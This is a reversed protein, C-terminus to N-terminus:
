GGRTQPGVGCLQLASETIMPAADAATLRDAAVQEAATRAIGVIAEALRSAALADDFDGSAQGRAIM